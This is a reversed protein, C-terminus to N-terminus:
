ATPETSKPNHAQSPCSAEVAALVDLRNQLNQPASDAKCEAALLRQVGRAFLAALEDLRERPTMTAPDDHIM